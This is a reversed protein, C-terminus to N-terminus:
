DCQSRSKRLALSRGKPLMRWMQAIPPSFKRTTIAISTPSSITNGGRLRLYCHYFAQALIAVSDARCGKLLMKM